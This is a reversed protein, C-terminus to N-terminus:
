EGNSTVNGMSTNASITINITPKNLIEYEGNGEFQVNVLTTGTAYGLLDIYPELDAAVLKGITENGGQVLAKVASTNIEAHYGASLNRIEIDDASINVEDTELKEFTVSIAITQTEDVPSVGYSKIVNLLEDSIPLNEEYDEFKDTIDYEYSIVSLKSLTDEDGSVIIKKPEYEFEKVRYGNKPQGVPTIKLEVEKTKQLEVNVTIDEISFELKSNDILDKNNDYVLFDNKNVVKQFSATRGQVNVDLVVRHIKNIVSEAGSVTIMNPSASKESITYGSDIEGSLQIDVSFKNSIKDELEVTLMKTTGLEMEYHTTTYKTINTEIYAAGTISLESLDAVAVIDSRNLSNVFSRRGTVSVDVANGGTVTYVKDKETIVDGNMITVTIDEFKKTVVPDDVNVILIWIVVAILLSLIKLGLNKKMKDKM